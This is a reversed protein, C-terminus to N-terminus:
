GFGKLQLGLRVGSVLAQLEKHGRWLTVLGPMGDAKRNMHGGLRGLALAVDRVTELNRRTRSSLVELELPDLGAETAPADPDVRLRERLDLLRLADVSMVSIAAFLAHASELQLREAGLGTKLAKHFDEVVWRTAYQLAICRSADLTDAPEDALLVWELPEIGEPPEPEWVRVVTCHVGALKGPSAGPRQPSRLVIPSSSISLWAVRSPRKPRERLRLEVTGRSPLARALEFLRGGPDDLRRDQSARVVFGHGLRQCDILFEYIDAGRDCVRVWRVDKPAPGLHHSTELWLKSERERSKRKRSESAHGKEEPPVPKRVEYLQDALGVIELAPHRYVEANIPTGWLVALVSHLLFGQAQEHGHGVPGLGPIPRRGAWSVESTDELLLFPGGTRLAKRVLSRHGAQLNNPTAEPHKFLNYTAKVDYPSECLQPISRGPQEAMAKGLAIVRRVRRIDTLAAGSFHQRAWSDEDRPFSM